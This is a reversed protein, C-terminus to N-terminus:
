GDVHEKGSPRLDDAGGPRTEIVVIRIMPKQKAPRLVVHITREGQQYVQRRVGDKASRSTPAFGKARLARDFGDILPEAPGASEYRWLLEVYGSRLAPRGLSWLLEASPPPSVPPAAKVGHLGALSGADQRLADMSIADIPEPADRAGTDFTPRVTETPSSQFFVVAQWCAFAVSGVLAAGWLVRTWRRRRAPPTTEENREAMREEAVM